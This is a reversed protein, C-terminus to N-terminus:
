HYDSFTTAITTLRAMNFLLSSAVVFIELILM